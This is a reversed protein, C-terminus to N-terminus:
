TTPDPARVLLATAILAAVAAGAVAIAGSSRNAQVLWVGISGAALGALAVIALVQPVSFGLRRLRLAVHDPSGRWPARRRAIRVLVTFAIEFVPIGLILVPAVVAWPNATSYDLALALSGLTAGLFLSGCDGLFIRAKPLSYKIYGALAGALAASVSALMAEGTLLAVVLFFLSAILCTTAALGDMIDLFNVANMIALMWIATLVINLLPPLAEIGIRVDARLLVVVIIAQGVLKVGPRMAGFDDMLGLLAALTSALLLALFARDFEFVLAAATLFPVFVAMGGLYPTAGVHTKLEGGPKDLFGTARATAIAIPTGLVALLGALGGAVVFALTSHTSIALADM